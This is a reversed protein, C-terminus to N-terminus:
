VVVKFVESGGSVVHGTPSTLRLKFDYQGTPWSVTTGPAQTVQVIGNAADSVTGTLALTGPAGQRELSAAVTWGTLDYTSLVGDTSLRVPGIFAFSDGRRFTIM